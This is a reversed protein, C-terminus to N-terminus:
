ARPHATRYVAALREASVHTYMQTTGLSAHGLIEQVARLDAGGDLLHTAASHRFTHPGSPGSGPLDALMGAVLAYVARTSIRRGRAGYFLATPEALSPAAAALLPRGRELYARLARQAPLGFPVIREKSGKGLVRVVRRADDVDHTDLGVLESVRLASAYLLEIMARDRLATADDSASRAELGDLLEDVQARTLVRPLRREGRPARLRAGVDATTVGTRALWATFGRVSSTRRALTSPALDAANQQWIWDRLMELDWAAVDDALGRQECFDALSALDVAYARLTHPSVGRELELARLHRAIAERLVTPREHM